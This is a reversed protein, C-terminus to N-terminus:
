IGLLAKAQELLEVSEDHNGAVHAEEGQARLDRVQALTGEDLQAVAAEDALAGDIEGMLVPCMHAWASATFLMLVLTMLVRKIM